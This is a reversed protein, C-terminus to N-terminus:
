FVGGSYEFFLVIVTSALVGALILLDGPGVGRYHLSIFAGSFGRLLMAQQVRGARKWGKVLTMGFLNGYTKYTHLSSTPMFSRFVAARKLRKYEDHIVFIYRYSYLLLLCLKQPARLRRLGHGLDAVSSTAILTVFMLILTNTKVTLLLALDLGERSVSLFGLHGITTGQVTVPLTLWCVLTFMNVLVLRKGLGVLPIQALVLGICALLLGVLVAQLHQCSAVGFCFCVAGIIKIHPSARHFISRGKAWQEFDM